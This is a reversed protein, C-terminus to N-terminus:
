FGFLTDWLTWPRIVRRCQGACVPRLRCLLPPKMKQYVVRCTFGQNHLKPSFRQFLFNKRISLVARIKPFPQAQFRAPSLSSRSMIRQDLYIKKLNLGFGQGEAKWIYLKAYRTHLAVRHAASRARWDCWFGM